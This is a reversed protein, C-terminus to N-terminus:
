ESKRNKLVTDITNKFSNLMNSYQFKDKIIEYSKRSMKKELDNDSLIKLMADYLQGSNQEEVIYGNDVIMDPAAGVADTAIIPNCYYMAENLVFVWPDAM